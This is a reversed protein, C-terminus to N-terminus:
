RFHHITKTSRGRPRCCPSGRFSGDSAAFTKIPRHQQESCRLSLLCIYFRIHTFKLASRRLIFPNKSRLNLSLIDEFLSVIVWPVCTRLTRIYNYDFVHRDFGFRLHLDYVQIMHCWIGFRVVHSTITQSPCYKLPPCQLARLVILVRRSREQIHV